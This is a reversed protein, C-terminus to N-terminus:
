RSSLRHLVVGMLGEVSFPGRHRSDISGLRNDGLVALTGPGVPGDGPIESPLPDGPLAAVRKVNWIRGDPGAQAATRYPGTLPPELVVVDGVRVHCLRRRRVLVRDGHAMTPAMSMGEVTVVVLNRRCWLMAASVALAGLFVSTLIM